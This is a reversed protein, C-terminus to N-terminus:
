YIFGVYCFSMTDETTRNKEMWLNNHVDVAKLLTFPNQSFNSSQRFWHGEQIGYSLSLFLLGNAVYHIGISLILFKNIWEM